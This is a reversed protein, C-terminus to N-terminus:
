SALQGLNLVGDDLNIRSIIDQVKLMSKAQSIINGILVYRLFPLDMTGHM